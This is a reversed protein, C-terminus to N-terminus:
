KVKVLRVTLRGNDVGLAYSYKGAPLEQEGLYDIPQLSLEQRGATISFGAYRYARSTARFATVAGIRVSGFDVEPEDPLSVLVRDFDLNSDNLIRIEVRGVAESNTSNMPPNESHTLWVGVGITALICAFGIVSLSVRLTM